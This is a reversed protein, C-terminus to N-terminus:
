ALRTVNKQEGLFLCGFAENLFDPRQVTWAPSAALNGPSFTVELLRPELAATVM